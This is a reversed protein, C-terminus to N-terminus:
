WKGAPVDRRGSWRKDIDGNRVRKKGKRGMTYGCEGGNEKLAYMEKKLNM